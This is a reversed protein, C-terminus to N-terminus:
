AACLEHGDPLVSGVGTLGFAEREDDWGLLDNPTTELIAALQALRGVPPTACDHEWQSVAQPTVGVRAAVQAQSLRLRRRALHLREGLTHANM